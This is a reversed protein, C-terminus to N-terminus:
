RPLDSAINAAWNELEKELDSVLLAKKSPELGTKPDTAPLIAHLVKLLEAGKRKLEEAETNALYAEDQCVTLYDLLEQLCECSQHIREPQVVNPRAHSQAIRTTLLLAVKRLRPALELREAEPLKRSLAYLQRRFERALKYSPLAEFEPNLDM